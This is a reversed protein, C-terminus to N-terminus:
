PDVEVSSLYPLQCFVSVALEVSPAFSSPSSVPPLFPETPVGSPLLPVVSALHLVYVHHILVWPM